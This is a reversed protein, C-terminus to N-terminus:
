WILVPMQMPRNKTCAHCGIHMLRINHGSFRCMGVRSQLMLSNHIYIQNQNSSRHFMRGTLLNNNLRISLALNIHNHMPQIRHNKNLCQNCNTNYCNNMMGIPRIYTYGWHWGPLNGWCNNMNQLMYLVSYCGCCNMADFCLVLFRFRDTMCGLICHM